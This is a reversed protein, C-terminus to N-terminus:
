FNCEEVEFLLLPNFPKKLIEKGLITHQHLSRQSGNKYKIKPCNIFLTKSDVLHTISKTFSEQDEKTTMFNCINSLYVTDILIEHTDLHKRINYFKEHNKIDETIATIKNNSALNKIFEYNKQNQLWSGERLLEKEIRDTPSGYQDKHFFIDREKGRLSNLYAIMNSVFDERSAFKKIIEITKKIFAANEPNFDVILGFDSKRKCMIDLNHWSACGIHITNKRLPHNTLLLNTAELNKENTTIYLGNVQGRVAINDFIAFGNLNQNAQWNWEVIGPIVVVLGIITFSLLIAGSIAFVKRLTEYNDTQRIWQISRFMFCGFREKNNQSIVYFLNNSYNIDINKM